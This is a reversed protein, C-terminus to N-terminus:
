EAAANAGQGRYWRLAIAQPSRGVTAVPAGCGDLCLLTLVLGARRDAIMATTKM